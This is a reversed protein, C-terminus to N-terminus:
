GMKSRCLNLEKDCKEFESRLAEMETKLADSQQKVLENEEELHLLSLVQSDQQASLLELRAIEKTIFDLHRQQERAKGEWFLIEADYQFM